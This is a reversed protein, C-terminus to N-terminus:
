LIINLPCTFLTPDWCSLCKKKRGERCLCRTTRIYNKWCEPLFEVDTKYFTKDFNDEFYNNVTVIMAKVDSFGKAGLLKKFNQFLHFSRLALDLSYLPHWILDFMIETIKAITIISKHAPISDEHFCFWKRRCILGSKKLEIM